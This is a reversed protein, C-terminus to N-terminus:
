MLILGGLILLYYVRRLDDCQSICTVMHLLGFIARVVLVKGNVHSKQLINQM